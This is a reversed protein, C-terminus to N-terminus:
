HLKKMHNDRYAEIAELFERCTAYRNEPDHSLAKFVIEDMEPNLVPNM